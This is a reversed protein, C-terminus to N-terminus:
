KIAFHSPVPATVTIKNGSSPHFFTLKECHLMTTIGSVETGYLFDGYLPYGAYSMHVRLQHTRGTEPILRVLTLGDRSKIPVCHTLAYKGDESVVRKIGRDSEKKINAAIEIPESLNGVCVALYEKKIRNERMQRNMVEATYKNKAILVIGSTDKDLRTVARFVFDKGLYGCVANALTGTLHYKSPHTPMDSPKSVAIIDEDEYLIELPEAVPIINNKRTEPIIIKINDGHNLVTRATCPHGNVFICDEKKLETIMKDSFRMQKKLLYKITTGELSKEIFFNFEKM